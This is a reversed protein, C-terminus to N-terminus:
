FKLIYILKKKLSFYNKFKGSNIQGFFIQYTDFYYMTLILISISILHTILDFIFNSLWFVSIPLGTMLQILKSKTIREHIPYLSYSAALFPFAIPILFLCIILWSIFVIQLGPSTEGIINNIIPMLEMNINLNSRLELLLAGFFAKISLILSHTQETNFWVNVNNDYQLGYISKTVYSSLDEVNSLIFDDFSSLHDKMALVKGRYKLNEKRYSEEFSNIGQYYSVTKDGYIDKVNYTITRESNVRIIGNYAMMALCVIFTPILIQLIFSQWYRRTFHFRKILLALIQNLILGNSTDLKSVLKNQSDIQNDSLSDLEDHKNLDVMLFVDELTSYSLGFSKIGYMKRNNEMHKFLESFVKTLEKGIKQNFKYIVETAVESKLLATPIYQKIVDLFEKSNFGSGKDIRLQYGTGFTDKLFYPSGSCNLIGQSM